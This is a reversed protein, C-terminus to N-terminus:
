GYAESVPVMEIAHSPCVTRSQNFRWFSRAVACYYIGLFSGALAGYDAPVTPPPYPQAGASLRVAAM